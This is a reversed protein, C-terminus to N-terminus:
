VDGVWLFAVGTLTAALAWVSSWGAAGLAEAGEVTAYTQLWTHLGGVAVLTATRKALQRSRHSYGWLNYLLTEGFTATEPNFNATEKDYKDAKAAQSPTFLFLKAAFGVPVFSAILFLFNANHLASIDKIGDFHTVLYVPLWSGFSGFVVVGYVSAALLSIYTQVGFDNIVSRNAAIGRPTIVSHVSSSVKLSYFPAYAALTDIFICCM